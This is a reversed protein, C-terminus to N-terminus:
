PVEQASLEAAPLVCPTPAAAARDMAGMAAGVTSLIIGVAVVIVTLLYWQGDRYAALAINGVTYAIPILILALGLLLLINGRM